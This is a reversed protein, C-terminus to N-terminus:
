RALLRFTLVIFGVTLCSQGIMTRDDLLDIETLRVCNVYNLIRIRKSPPTTVYVHDRLVIGLLRLAVFGNLMAFFDFRWTVM